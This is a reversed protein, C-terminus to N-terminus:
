ADPFLVERLYREAWREGFMRALLGLGKDDERHAAAYGDQARQVAPDPAGVEPAHAALAVFAEVTERYAEAARPLESPTPRVYLAHPSFWCACWAPLAGGPSLDSYAAMRRAFGELQRERADGAPLVPSLDAAIMVGAGRAGLSVLDAGLIPLALDLRPLALVNGIEMGGGTVTAVRAWRVAGGRWARTEIAV